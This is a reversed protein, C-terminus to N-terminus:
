AGAGDKGTWVIHPALWAPPEAMDDPASVCLVLVLAHQASFAELRAFTSELEVLPKGCLRVFADVYIAALDFNSAVMGGLFGIMGDAGPIEYESGDVFRIQYKIDTRYASDDDLFAINGATTAIAANAMDIMRKTKGSGRHGYVVQLM